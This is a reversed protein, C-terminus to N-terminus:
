LKRVYILFASAPEGTGARAKGFAASRRSYLQCSALASPEYEPEYPTQGQAQAVLRLEAFQADIPLINQADTSLAIRTKMTLFLRRLLIQSVTLTHFHASPAFLVRVDVLRFLCLGDSAM